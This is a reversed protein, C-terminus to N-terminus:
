LFLCTKANPDPAAITIALSPVRSGIPAATLVPAYGDGTSPCCHNPDMVAAEFFRQIVNIGVLAAALGDLADNPM